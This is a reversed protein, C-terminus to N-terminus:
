RKAAADVAALRADHTAPDYPHTGIRKGEEDRPRSDARAYCDACCLRQDVHREKGPALMPFIADPLGNGLDVYEVDAENLPSTFRKGCHPCTANLPM